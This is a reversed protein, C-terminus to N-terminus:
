SVRSKLLIQWVLAALSTARAIGMNLKFELQPDWSDVVRRQYKTDLAGFSVPIEVNYRADDMSQGNVTLSHTEKVSIVASMKTSPAYHDFARLWDGVNIFWEYVFSLPILELATVFPNLDFSAVVPSVQIAVRARAVSTHGQVIEIPPKFNGNSCYHTVVWNYGSLDLAEQAKGVVVVSPPGVSVRGLSKGLDRASSILPKWGYTWELWLASLENLVGRIGTSTLHKVFDAGHKKRLRRIYEEIVDDLRTLLRQRFSLFMGIVEPLEGITTGVDFAQQRADAYAKTMLRNILDQDEVSYPNVGSTLTCGTIASACWSDTVIDGDVTHRRVLGPIDAIQRGFALFNTYPRFGRDWRAKDGMRYATQADVKSVDDYFPGQQVPVGEPDSLDQIIAQHRMLQRTSM